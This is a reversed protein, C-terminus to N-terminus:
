DATAGDTVEETKGEMERLAELKGMIRNCLPDAAVLQNGRQQLAQELEEITEM